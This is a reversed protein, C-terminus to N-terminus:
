WQSGRFPGPPQRRPARRRSSSGDAGAGGVQTQDEQRGKPRYRPDGLGEGIALPREPEHRGGWGSILVRSAPLGAGRFHFGGSRTWTSQDVAAFDGFLHLRGPTLCIRYFFGYLKTQAKWGRRPSSA